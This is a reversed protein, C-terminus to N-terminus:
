IHAWTYVITCPAFTV